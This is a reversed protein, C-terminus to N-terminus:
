RAACVIPGGVPIVHRVGSTFGADRSVAVTTAAGPATTVRYRDTDVPTVKAVVAPGCDIAVAQRILALDASRAAATIRAQPPQAVGPGLIALVAFVAVVFV